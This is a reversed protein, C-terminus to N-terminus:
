WTVTVEIRPNAKDYHKSATVSEVLSDDVLVKATVLADLTAKITADADGLALGAAPGTQIQRPLYVSIRVDCPESVVQCRRAAAAHAVASARWQKYKPSPRLSPRGNVVTARKMANVSADGPNGPITCRYVSM